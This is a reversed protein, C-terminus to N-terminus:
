NLIEFSSINRGFFVRFFSKVKQSHKFNFYVLKNQVPPQSKKKAATTKIADQWIFDAGMSAQGLTLFGIAVRCNDEFNPLWL